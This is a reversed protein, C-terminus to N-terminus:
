VVQVFARGGSAMVLGPGLARGRLPTLWEDRCPTVSPTLAAAEFFAIKAFTHLAAVSPRMPFWSM